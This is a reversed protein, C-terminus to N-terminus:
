RSRRTSSSARSRATDSVLARAPVGRRAARRRRPDGDGRRVAGLGVARRAARPRRRAGAPRRPRALVLARARGGGRGAAPERRARRARRGTALCLVPRVRKGGLAHRMPEALTGLEPTLALEDLYAEVLARLESLRGPCGSRRRHPPRPRPRASRASCSRRSRRRSSPSSRCSRSRRTPTTPRRSGRGRRSSGRSCIRRRRDAVRGGDHRRGNSEVSSATSSGRATTPRTASRSRSRRTSRSRPRAGRRTELEHVAVRLASREVAGLRDATWGESAATIRADLERPARPSRRPSAARGRTSRARTSRASRSARLSGVPLAPLAGAPAGPPALHTM